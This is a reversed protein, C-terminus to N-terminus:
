YTFKGTLITMISQRFLDLAHRAWEELGNNWIDKFSKRRFIMSLIVIFGIFVFMPTLVVIDFLLTVVGVLRTILREFIKKM